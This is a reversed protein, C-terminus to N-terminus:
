PFQISLDRGFFVEADLEEGRSEIFGRWGIVVVRGDVKETMVMVLIPTNIDTFICYFLERGPSMGSAVLWVDLLSGWTRPVLQRVCSTVYGNECEREVNDVLAPSLYSRAEVEDGNVASILFSKATSEYPGFLFNSGIAGIVLAIGVFLLVILLTGILLRRLSRQDKM